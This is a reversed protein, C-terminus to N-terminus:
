RHDSRIPTEVPRIVAISYFIKVISFDKPKSPLAPGSTPFQSWEDSTAYSVILLLSHDRDHGQPITARFVFLVSLVHIGGDLLNYFSSALLTRQPRRPRAAGPATAASDWEQFAVCRRRCVRDKRSRPM